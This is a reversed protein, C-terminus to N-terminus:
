LRCVRCPGEDDYEDVDSFLALQPDVGRPLRQRKFEDALDFLSAPWDDKTPSRFTHGLWQETLAADRYIHPYDKWLQWWEGLRQYFCRACDTRRPVTVMRCKLYARVEDIGWGWERLPFRTEVDESYIGRREVEDARLGVYLTVPQPQERIWALCPEVKCERTCWRQRWNPLAQWHDIREALSPGPPRTLTAGLMQELRAWHEYMEPLEDGTPTILYVPKMDPWVEAMRLAMATSDKGGSLAVVPLPETV